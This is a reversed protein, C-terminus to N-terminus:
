CFFVKYAVLKTDSYVHPKKKKRDEKIASKNDFIQIKNAYKLVKNKSNTIM